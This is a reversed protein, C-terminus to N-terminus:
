EKLNELRVADDNEGRAVIDGIRYVTEGLAQLHARAQDARDAPVVLVMGIGCNLVRHM